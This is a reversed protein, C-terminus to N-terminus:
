QIAVTESISIGCEKPDERLAREEDIFHVYGELLPTDPHYEIPLYKADAPFLKITPVRYINCPVKLVNCRAIAITRQGHYKQGVLAYIEDVKQCRENQYTLILMFSKLCVEPNYFEVVVDKTKDAITSKYNSSNLEIIPPSTENSLQSVAARSPTVNSKCTRNKSPNKLSALIVTKRVAAMPWSKRTAQSDQTETSGM